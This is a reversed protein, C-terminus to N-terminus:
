TLNDTVVFYEKEAEQDVIGAEKLAQVFFHASGDMIPVEPGDIEILLNDIELGYAAALLHETTHVRAGHAEITTGRSTDVVLDADAKILPKEDLDIRQFVYGHNEDAPKFTIKSKKGTHLGVGLLSVENKITKQKTSM